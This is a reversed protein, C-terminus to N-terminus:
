QAQAKRNSAYARNYKKDSFYTLHHFLPLTITCGELLYDIESRFFIRGVYILYSDNFFHLRYRVYEKNQEFTSVKCSFPKNAGILAAQYQQLKKEHEGAIRYLRSWIQRGRALVDWFTSSKLKFNTNPEGDISTCAGVYIVVGPDIDIFRNYSKNGSRSWWSGKTEEFCNCNRGPM